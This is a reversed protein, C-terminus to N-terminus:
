NLDNVDYLDPTHKIRGLLLERPVSVEWVVRGDRTIETVEGLGAWTAIVNGNPLRRADGLAATAEGDPHPFSWVVEATGAAEDWAVEVISSVPPRHHDGNDFLLAGGEWVDSMHAHSWLAAADVDQWVPAGGPLTFDGGPGNLQWLVEGTTRDIKLLWDTFKANVYYADESPVWMMSNSHTWEHVDAQGFKDDVGVIHPCIPEPTLSPADFMDFILDTPDGDVMGEPGELIRDSAMPWTGLGPVVIDEFSMSLFAVRGGPLQVYDHHGLELRTQVESTGDLRIRVLKGYDEWKDFDSENYVVSVGDIGFEPTVVLRDDDSKKWWVWDGDGDFIALFTTQEPRLANVLYYGGSAGAEAHTVTLDPLGAPPSPVTWSGAPSEHRVGDGDIVVARWAYTRRAKLGLLGVEHHAGAPQDPTRRDFAGDLGYEVFAVGEPGDITVIPVAPVLPSGTISATVGDVVPAGTDGTPTSSPTDTPTDTADDGSCAVLLLLLTPARM